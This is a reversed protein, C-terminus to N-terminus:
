ITINLGGYNLTVKNLTYQTESEQAPRGDGRQCAWHLLRPSQLAPSLPLGLAESM